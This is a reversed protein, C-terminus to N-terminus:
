TEFREQLLSHFDLLERMLGAPVSSRGCMRSPTRLCNMHISLDPESQTRNQSNPICDVSKMAMEKRKPAVSVAWLRGRKQCQPQFVLPSFKLSWGETTFFSEQSLFFWRKTRKGSRELFYPTNKELSNRLPKPQLRHNQVTNSSRCVLLSPKEWHPKFAEQTTSACLENQRLSHLPPLSSSIKKRLGDIKRFAKPQSLAEQAALKM